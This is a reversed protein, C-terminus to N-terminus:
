STHEHKGRFISSLSERENLRLKLENSCDKCIAISGENINPVISVFLDLTKKSCLSCQDIIEDTYSTLDTM